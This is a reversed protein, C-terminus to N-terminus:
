QLCDGCSQLKTLNERRYEGGSESDTRSRAGCPPTSSTGSPHKSERATRLFCRQRNRLVDGCSQLRCKEQLAPLILRRVFPSIRFYNNPNRASSSRRGSNCVSRFKKNRHIPLPLMWAALQTANVM